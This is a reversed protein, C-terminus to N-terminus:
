LPLGKKMIIRVFKILRECDINDPREVPEIKAKKLLDLLEQKPVLNGLANLIKKRRNRFIQDLIIHFFKLEKIEPLIKPIFKIVYVDIDPPPYFAFSPIKFLPEMDFYLQAIISIRGYSKNGAKAILREVFEKQFSLVAINIFEANAILKEMFQSSIYFPPNGVIKLKEGSSIFQSFDITRLDDQVYVINAFQALYKRAIDLLRKDYEVAIVEKAVQALLRTLNGIGAGPELVVDQSSIQAKQCLRELYKEKKLFHQGRAINAKLGYKKLINEIDM